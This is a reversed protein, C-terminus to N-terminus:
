YNRLVFILEEVLPLRMTRCRRRFNMEQIFTRINGEVIGASYINRVFARLEGWLGEIRSTNDEDDEQQSYRHHRYNDPIRDYGRWGDHIIYSGGLIHRTVLNNIIGSNRNEVVFCFAEYTREEM